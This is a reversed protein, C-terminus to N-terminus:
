SPLKLGGVLPVRDCLDSSQLEALSVTPLLTAVEDRRHRGIQIARTVVEVEARTVDDRCKEALRVLSRDVAIGLKEDPPRTRWAAFEKVAVVSGVRENM